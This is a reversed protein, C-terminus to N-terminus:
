LNSSLFFKFFFFLFILPDNTIKHKPLNTKQCRKKLGYINPWCPCIPINFWYQNANVKFLVNSSSSVLPMLFSEVLITKLHDTVHCLNITVILEMMRLSSQKDRQSIELAVPIAIINYSTNNM